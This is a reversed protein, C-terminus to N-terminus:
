KAGLGGAKSKKGGLGEQLVKAGPPSFM